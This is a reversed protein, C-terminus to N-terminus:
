PSTEPEIVVGLVNVDQQSGKGELDLRIVGDKAPIVASFCRYEETNTTANTALPVGNASVNQHTRFENMGLDGLVVWVRYRGDPVKALFANKGSSMIGDSVLPLASPDEGLVKAANESRDFSIRPFREWGFVGGPKWADLSTVRTWGEALPSDPLGFDLKTVARSWAPLPELKTPHPDADVQKMELLDEKRSFPSKLMHDIEGVDAIRGTKLFDFIASNARRLADDLEATPDQKAMPYGYGYLWFGASEVGALFADKWLKEPHMIRPWLGVCYLVHANRAALASREFPADGNYGYYTNEGFAIIPMEKTGLGRQMGRFFWNDFHQLYGILLDPAEDHIAEEVRRTITALKDELFAYYAQLKGAKLLTDYRTGAAIEEPEALEPFFQRCFEAFNAADFTCTSHYVEMFKAGYMELDIVVAAIPTGNKQSARWAELAPKVVQEQWAKEDLPNPRDDERGDFLVNKAFEDRRLTYQEGSAFNVVHFFRMGARRFFGAMTDTYPAVVCNMGTQAARQWLAETTDTFFGDDEDYQYQSLIGYIGRIRESAIWRIAPRWDEAALELPNWRAGAASRIRLALLSGTAPKDRDIGARVRLNGGPHEIRARTWIPTGIFGYVASIVRKGNAELFMAPRFNDSREGLLAEMEYTGAPLDLEFELPKELSFRVGDRSLPDLPDAQPVDFSEIPVSLWRFSPREETGQSSASIWDKEVPSDAKGFDLRVDAGAQMPAAISWLGATALFAIKKMLIKKM